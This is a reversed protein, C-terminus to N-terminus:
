GKDGPPARAPPPSPVPPPGLGITEGDSWLSLTGDQDTRLVRVKLASLRELTAPAPHGYANGRGCSILAIKPSVRALLESGSAHRSGHHAVKVVDARLEVGSALLRVETEREADGLFLFAVQGHVVRVVVSNANVDSRSGRILPEQPGLVELTTREGLSLKLGRRALRYVLKGQDQLANLRRLLRRYTVSTHPVGSDLVERVPIEALVRELGGVHDLHAHTIILLDIQEVGHRRLTSLVTEAAARPGGDILVVRRAEGRGVLLLLADGQGVDLVQLELTPHQASLPQGLVPRAPCGLALVAAVVVALRIM